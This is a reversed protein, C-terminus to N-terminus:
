NHLQQLCTDVGDGSLATSTTSALFEALSSERDAAAGTEDRQGTFLATARQECLAFIVDVTTQCHAVVAIAVIPRGHVEHRELANGVSLESILPTDISIVNDHQWKRLGVSLAVDHVADILSSLATTAVAVEFIPRQRLM